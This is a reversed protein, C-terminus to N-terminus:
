GAARTARREDRGQQGRAHHSGRSGALPPPYRCDPGPPAQPHPFALASVWCAALSDAAQEDYIAQYKAEGTEGQRGVQETRPLEDGRKGQSERSVWDVAGTRCWVAARGGGFGHRTCHSGNVGAQCGGGGLGHCTHSGGRAFNCGLHWRLGARHLLAADTSPCFSPLLSRGNSALAIFGIMM